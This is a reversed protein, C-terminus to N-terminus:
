KSVFMKKEFLRGHRNNKRRHISNKSNKSLIKKGWKVPNFSSISLGFWIGFCSGVQVIYEVLNLLPVSYLSMHPFSPLMSSLFFADAYFEQVTTRSFQTLCETQLKCRSHCETVSYDVFKSITGNKLDVDTIMTMDLKQSHFGSWPLRNIKKFKEALCNEYCFERDHGPTCRTDHPPPLRSIEISDGSVAFRSHQFTKMNETNAQFLRSHLPNKLNGNRDRIISIFFAHSSNSISPRINVQHVISIHTVSAAVDGVSFNASLRPIFTYCIREGTVSKMVKFFAKCEPQSLELPKFLKGHRIACADIVDSESPTLEFIDKIKLKSLEQHVGVLNTPAQSLIRYRKNNKRNLLDTSRPCYMISQYYDMERIQYITRSSTEFRFYLDSVQQVQVLFGLLCILSFARSCIKRINMVAHLKNHLNM